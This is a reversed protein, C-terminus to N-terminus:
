SDSKDGDGAEPVDGTKEMKWMLKEGDVSLRKVLERDHHTSVLQGIIDILGSIVDAQRQSHERIRDLRWELEVHEKEYERAESIALKIAHRINAKVTM